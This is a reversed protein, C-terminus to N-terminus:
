KKMFMMTGQTSSADKNQIGEGDVMEIELEVIL